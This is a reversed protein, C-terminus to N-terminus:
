RAQVLAVKAAAVQAHTSLVLQQYQQIVGHVATYAERAESSAERIEDLERVLDQREKQSPTGEPIPSFYHIPDLITSSSSSTLHIYSPSPTPTTTSSPFPLPPLPLLLLLTNNTTTTATPSTPTPPM